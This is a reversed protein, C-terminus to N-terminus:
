AGVDKLETISANYVYNKRCTTCQGIASVQQDSAVRIDTFYFSMSGCTCRLAHGIDLDSQEM